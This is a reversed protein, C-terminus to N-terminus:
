NKWRKAAWGCRCLLLLGFLLFQTVIIRVPIGYL